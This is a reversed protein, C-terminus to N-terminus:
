AAQDGNLGAAQALARATYVPAMRKRYSLSMDTNDLPRAPRAAAQAAAEIVERTLKQGILLAEAAQAEVPSSEVAGLVIRAATCTGDEALKLAVAVGLIPFDFAGRRRLKWYATRLGDVPPLRIETLIEDPQKTLYAIGDDRYLAEVPIVRKGQPGELCVSAGLAVMVPATDSSFVAWCRESGSAVLCVDGGKKMCFGISKRWHYTQNYYNCRTDVCLNGGITGMNRLQATSVAGAAHALAPYANAILPQQSVQTLTVGSGITLGTQATGEVHRLEPISRLSVLAAPEFQRRKMNPYLDTGGAVIMAASGREALLAVAEALSRPALFEFPPLRLM